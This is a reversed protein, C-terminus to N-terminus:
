PKYGLDRLKEDIMSMLTTAHIIDGSGKIEFDVTQHPPNESIIKKYSGKFSYEVDM